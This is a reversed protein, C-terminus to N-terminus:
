GNRRRATMLATQTRTAIQQQTEISVPQNAPLVFTNKVTVGGMSSAPVISGAQDPVFWESRSTNENVQYAMGPSVPGGSARGGGYIAGFFESIYGAIGSGGSSGSGTQGFAQQILQKATMEILQNMVSTLFDSWAEKASKAGTALDTIDTALQDEFIGVFKQGLLDTQAKLNDIEAGFKKVNEVLAPNGSADAIQQEKKYIDDLQTAAQKRADSIQGMADLESIAGTTQSNKIREEQIALDSQIKEAQTQLDNFQAQAVILQKLTDLQEQGATNGETRLKKVLEANQQDFSIAAAQATNGRLTEIQANVGKLAETIEKANKLHDLATATSEIQAALQQGPKGAAKVEDSLKGLELRYKVAASDSQDFTAVQELLGENMEKLKKLADAAADGAAKFAAANPAQEKIKSSTIKVEALVDDGGSKWIATRAKQYEEEMKLNDATGERWIQAAQEFNGQVFQVASAAVAGIANGLKEFATVTALAGTAFAKIAYTTAQSATDLLTSKDLLTQLQDALSNLNPLLQSSIRNGLGDILTTKLRELKNSFEDAAAATEGSIVAGAERAQQTLEAIGAPGSNLFPILEAGAKGFLQTALAVKNAGDAYGSFKGAVESLLTETTKVDGSSDKVAIGMAKFAAAAESKANGSAESIAQNLKRIAVVSSEADVGTTRMGYQLASLSETSIGTAQSLNHLSGETELVQKGWEKIADVTFYAAIGAAFKGLISDQDSKFKRLQNTAKELNEDYKATQAELRVVLSALDTM